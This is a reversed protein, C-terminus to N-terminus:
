SYGINLCNLKIEQPFVSNFLEGSILRTNAMANAIQRSPAVAKGRHALVHAAMFVVGIHWRM